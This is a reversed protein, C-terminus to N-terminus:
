APGVDGHAKHGDPEIRQRPPGDVGHNRPANKQDDHDVRREDGNVGVVVAREEVGRPVNHGVVYEIGLGVQVPHLAPLVIQLVAHQIKADSKRERQRRHADGYAAPPPQPPAGPLEALLLSLAVTQFVVLGGGGGGGGAFVVLHAARVRRTLEHEERRVQHGHVEPAGDHLRPRM